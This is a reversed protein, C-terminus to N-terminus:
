LPLNRVVTFITALVLASYVASAPPEPWRFTESHFVRRISIGFYIAATPFMLTVLANFHLAEVFHARLVAALARTAGCGPCQLHLWSYIPCQPYFNFRTPPFVLLVAASLSVLAVIAVARTLNAAHSSDSPTM